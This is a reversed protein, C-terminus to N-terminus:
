KISSKEAVHPLPNLKVADDVLEIGLFLGKEESM